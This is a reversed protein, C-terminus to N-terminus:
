FGSKKIKFYQYFNCKLRGNYLKRIKDAKKGYLSEFDDVSSLIYIQWNDLKSFAKGMNKYLKEVAKRDLLREGYPPNCVITGRRGHTSIDIMDMKFIKLYNLVGARKANSQTLAVCNNDIDSAFAEFKCDNKIKSKAEQRALTWINKDIFDFNEAAFNRMLGPATNSMLMAAEIAITGSGCFPDWMLVDERLHAIKVMAAALTERLPAANSDIRYGRKHLPMGSTEIMITAIDHNIFFEIRYINETEQFWDTHYSLKLKEVIAKKIISQCDPISTLKSKLSSGTVPFCDDKGIFCEFPLDKTGDFLEAFTEAKFSGLKIYLRQAYRSFINFRAIANEDGGFTVRGDTVEIKKYGLTMIEDSVFRELGFLCTAVYEYYGM